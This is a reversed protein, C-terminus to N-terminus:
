EYLYARKLLTDPYVNGHYFQLQIYFLSLDGREKQRQEDLNTTHTEKQQKSQDYDYRKM